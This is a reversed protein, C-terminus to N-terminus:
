SPLLIEDKTSNCPVCHDHEFLFLKERCEREIKREREGRFATLPHHLPAQVPAQSLVVSVLSLQMRVLRACSPSSRQLIILITRNLMWIPRAPAALYSRWTGSTSVREGEEEGEGEEEEWWRTHPVPGVATLNVPLFCHLYM